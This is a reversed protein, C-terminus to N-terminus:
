SKVKKSALIYGIFAINLTVGIIAELSSILRNIGLPAIDGYGVTTFTMTSFYLSNHFDLKVPGGNNLFFENNAMYTGAFLFIIVMIFITYSVLFSLVSKPKALKNITPILGLSYLVVVISIVMFITNIRSEVTIYRLFALLIIVLLSLYDEFITGKRRIIHFIKVIAFLILLTFIFYKPIIKFIAEFLLSLLLTTAIILALIFEIGIERKNKKVM